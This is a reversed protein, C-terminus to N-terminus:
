TIFMDKFMQLFRKASVTPDFPYAFSVSSRLCDLQDLEVMLALQLMYTFSFFCYM